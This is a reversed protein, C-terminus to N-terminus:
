ATRQSLLQKLRTNRTKDDVNRLAANVANEDGVLVVKERARTVATYLLDRRLMKYDHWCQVVVVAKFESGQAKHTSMAYALCMSQTEEPKMAVIKENDFRIILRKATLDIKEVTGCDGNSLELGPNNELYMVRDNERFFCGKLKLTAPTEPNIRERIIENLLGSSTISKKKKSKPVACLVNDLGFQTVLKLYAEITKEQAEEKTVPIFVFTEDKVFSYVGQGNNIRQANKAIAGSNRHSIDLMVAPVCPSQLIDKFFNGPGIPSLQDADGMFIIQCEYTRAKELLKYALLIDLMSAEDVVILSGKELKTHYLLRHITSAEMKTIDAIRRAAKGTPACLAIKDDTILKRWKSENAKRWAHILGKIITTKGSGPGGTIVSIRNRMSVIIADKQRQVLEFGIENEFADIADEIIASTTKVVAESTLFEKIIAACNKEADYIERWYLKNDDVLVLNGKGIEDVVIDSVMDLPINNFDQELLAELSELSCYCHGEDAITKLTYVIAAGIRRPDNFKIGSSLALKDAIGFGIGDVKYIIIYPNEKIKKIGNGRFAEHIRNVQNSTIYDGFFEYLEILEKSDMHDEHMKEAKEKTIGPVSSLKEPEKELVDLTELGFTDIIKEVMKPGIGSISNCLYNKIGEINTAQTVTANEVQLQKGYKDHVISEGTVTIDYGVVPAEIKGAAKHINGDRDIISLSAWHNGAFFIKEIRGTLTESM